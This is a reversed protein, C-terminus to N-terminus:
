KHSLVKKNERLYINREPLYNNKKMFINQSHLLKTSNIKLYM